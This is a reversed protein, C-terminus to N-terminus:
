RLNAQALKTDGCKTRSAGFVTEATEQLYTVHAYRRLLVTPDRWRGLRAATAVDVPQRVVMETGFGHRGTEHPTLYRLGARECTTRWARMAGQTDSWGFLRAPGQGYHIRRPQLTRLERVLEDTLYYVCPDGNKGPPGCVRKNDLDLHEPELRMCEGIRAATVYMFLSLVRVRQDVAHAMFADIWARDGAPREIRPEYYGKVRLPACLGAQNAFNINARAPKLVSRNRTANSARPYLEM